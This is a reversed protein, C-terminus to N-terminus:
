NRHTSERIEQRSVASTFVANKCGTFDPNEAAETCSNSQTQCIDQKKRESGRPKNSKQDHCQSQSFELQCQSSMQRWRPTDLFVGVAAPASSYKGLSEETSYNNSQTYKQVLVENRGSSQKPNTCM